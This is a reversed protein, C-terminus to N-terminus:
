RNQNLNQDKTGSIGLQKLFIAAEEPGYGIFIPGTFITQSQDSRAAKGHFGPVVHPHDQTGAAPTAQKPLAPLTDPDDQNVPSAPGRAPVYIGWPRSPSEGLRIDKLPRDFHGEREEHQVNAVPDNENIGNAWEEVKDVSKADMAAHEDGDKAPLLPQHKHGLGQLMNVLNGYKADLQRIGQVNSQYRKVCVEHSRPIEHKHTEFYEAIEEPPREDLWRIPCKTISGAVSPSLGDGGVSRMEAEDDLFHGRTEPPTPLSDPRGAAPDQCKVVKQRKNEGLAMSAFPCVAGERTDDSVIPHGLPLKGQSGGEASPSERLKDEKLSEGPPQPLTTKTNINLQKWAKLAEDIAQSHAVPELSSIL